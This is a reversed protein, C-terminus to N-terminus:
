KNWSRWLDPELAYEWHVMPDPEDHCDSFGRCITTVHLVRTTEWYRDDPLYYFFQTFNTYYDFPREDAPLKPQDFKEKAERLWDAVSPPPTVEDGEDNMWEVVLVAPDYDFRCTWVSDGIRWALNDIWEDELRDPGCEFLHTYSDDLWPVNGVGWFLGERPRGRYKGGRLKKGDEDLWVVLEALERLRRDGRAKWPFHWSRKFTDKSRFEWHSRTQLSEEATHFWVPRDDPAWDYACGPVIHPRWDEPGVDPHLREPQAPACSWERPGPEHFDFKSAPRSASTCGALSLCAPLTLLCIAFIRLGSM